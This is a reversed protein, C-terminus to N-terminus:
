YQCCHKRGSMFGTQDPHIIHALIADLRAALIKEIIKYDVNLLTIPRLNRLMRSDKGKKPILNLIGTKIDGPCQNQKYCYSLMECFVHAISNWFLKYFEAPLGDPGPTKSNKMSKIANVIEIQTIPKDMSTKMDSTIEVGHNNKLEFNIGDEIDYLQEYFRHQEKLIECDSTIERGDNESIIKNCTKANFRAKELNFFYKTNREGYEHWRLKSRFILRDARKRLLDELDAKTRLYLDMQSQDLPFNEEFVNLQESLQSIALQQESARNRSIKKLEKAIGSKIHLWRMDPNFNSSEAVLKNLKDKVQDCIENSSLLECNLKWYGSGRKNSINNDLSLYVASHDSFIGQLYTVNSVNRDLGHSVLVNDIRSASNRGRWSYRRVNPNRDRWVDTLLLEEMMQDICARSKNNNYTSRSRDLKPDMVLNYDGIIVRHESYGKLQENINEFFSPTDTNPAYIACLTNQNYQSDESIECIIVRGNSDTYIKGINILLAKKFLICIGRSASTGHQLHNQWGMRTDM